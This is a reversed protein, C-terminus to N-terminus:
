ATGQKSAWAIAASANFRRTRRGWTESPMGAAVMRDITAVSLGMLRALGARDLYPEVGAPVHTECAVCRLAIQRDDQAM